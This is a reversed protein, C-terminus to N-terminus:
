KKEKNGRPYNRNFTRLSMSREVTILRKLGILNLCNESRAYYKIKLM